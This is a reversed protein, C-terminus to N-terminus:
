EYKFIQTVFYLVYSNILIVQKFTHFKFVYFQKLQSVVRIFMLKVINNINELFNTMGQYSMPPMM